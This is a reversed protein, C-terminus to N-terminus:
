PRPSPNFPKAVPHPRFQDLRDIRRIFGALARDRRQIIEHRLSRLGSPNLKRRRVSHAMRGLLMELDQIRGAARQYEKMRKLQRPTCAPYIPDLLEVLYRYSKFAIRLRHVLAPDDSRVAQRAQQVRDFRGTLLRRVRALEIPQSPAQLLSKELEKLKRNGATPKTKALCHALRTELKEERRKLFQKFPLAEPHRDWVARLLQLQVQVDRLSGFQKLRKEFNKSLKALSADPHLAHLLDLLALVRRTEVRLQHISKQSFKKRVAELRAAYKHRAKRVEQSLFSRLPHLATKAM